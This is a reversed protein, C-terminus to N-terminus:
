TTKAPPVAAPTARDGGTTAPDAQGTGPLPRAFLEGVLRGATVPDAHSIADHAYKALEERAAALESQAQALSAAMAKENATARTEDIVAQDRDAIAQDQTLRGTIVSEGEVEARKWMWVAGGTAVLAVLSVIILAVTV